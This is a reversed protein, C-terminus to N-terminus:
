GREDGYIKYIKYKLLNWCFQGEQILTCNYDSFTRDITKTNIAKHADDDFLTNQYRLDKIKKWLPEIYAVYAASPFSLIIHGGSKCHRTINQILVRLEKEHFHEIVDTCVVVDFKKNLDLKADLINLHFVKGVGLLREAIKLADRNCDVGCVDYGNQQLLHLLVGNACGVDLVSGKDIPFLNIISNFKKKYFIKRPTNGFYGVYYYDPRQPKNKMELKRTEHAM